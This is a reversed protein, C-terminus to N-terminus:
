GAPETLPPEGRSVLFEDFLRLFTFINTASGDIREILGHWGRTDTMGFKNELWVKFDSLLTEEGRGFEKMGLDSRAMSYAHVFLYLSWVDEAGLYSAPRRRMMRLFPLLWPDEPKMDM